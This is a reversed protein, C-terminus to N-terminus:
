VREVTIVDTQDLTDFDAKGRGRSVMCRLTHEAYRVLPLVDKYNDYVRQEGTSRWTCLLQSRDRRDWVAKMKDKAARAKAPNSWFDGPRPKDIYAALEEIEPQLRKRVKGALNDVVKNFTITIDKM